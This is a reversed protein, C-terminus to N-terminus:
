SNKLQLWPLVLDNVLSASDTSTSKFQQESALIIQYVSGCDALEWGHPRGLNNQLATAEEMFLRNTKMAAPLPTGESVARLVSEIQKLKNKLMALLMLWADGAALLSQLSKEVQSINGSLFAVLLSRRAFAADEQLVSDLLKRDIEGSSESQLADLRKLAQELLTLDLAVANLLYGSLTRDLKLGFRSSLQQLYLAMDQANPPYIVSLVGSASAHEVFPQKQSRKDLMPCIVLWADQSFTTSEFIKAILAAQSKIPKSFFHLVHCTTEALLSTQHTSELLHDISQNPEVYISEIQYNQRKAAQKVLDLVYQQIVPEDTLVLQSLPLPKNELFRELAQWKIQM